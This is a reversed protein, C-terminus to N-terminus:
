EGWDLPPFYEFKEITVSGVKAADILRVSLVGNSGSIREWFMTDPNFKAGIKKMDAVEENNLYWIFNGKSPSVDANEEIKFGLVNPKSVDFARYYKQAAGAGSFNIMDNWPSTMGKVVNNQIRYQVSCIDAGGTGWQWELYFQVDKATMGEKIYFLYKGHKMAGITYSQDKSITRDLMTTEAYYHNIQKFKVNKIVPDSNEESKSTLKILGMRVQKTTNELVDVVLKDTTTLAMNITFWEAEDDEKSATWEVDANVPIEYRQADAELAHWKGNEPLSPSLTVGEQKCDLVQQVVGHRDYITLQGVRVEGKNNTSEVTVMGDLEGSEGSRISLWQEGQTVRATWKQNANIKFTLQGGKKQMVSESESPLEARLYAIGKQLVTFEKGIWYDSQIYLTDIRDDLDMNEDCTISVSAKEGAEGKNPSVTYWDAKGYVIWPATSKVLFTITAPKKAEVYYVDDVRYRLDVWKQTGDEDSCGTCLVSAVSGLLMVFSGWLVHGM